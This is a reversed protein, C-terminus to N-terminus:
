HQARSPGTTARTIRRTESTSPDLEVIFEITRGDPIQNTFTVRYVEGTFSIRRSFGRTDIGTEALVLEALDAAMEGHAIPQGRNVTTSHAPLEVTVATPQTTAPRHACGPLLGLLLLVPATKM